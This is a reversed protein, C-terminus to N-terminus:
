FKSLDEVARQLERAIQAPDRGAAFTLPKGIRVGIKWPPAFKRGAQRVEFLGVIRV